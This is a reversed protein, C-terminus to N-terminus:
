AIPKKAACEEALEIIRSVGERVDGMNGCLAIRVFNDYDRGFNIGPTAATNKKRLLLECFELGNTLTGSIDIFFYFASDPKIFKIISSHEMMKAIEQTTEQYYSRIKETYDDIVKLGALCGYQTFLSLCSFLTSNSLTLKEIVKKSSIAYGIRYGPISFVKSFSSIIILQPYDLEALSFFPRGFATDAYTEDSLLWIGKESCKKALYEMSDKSYVKGTPNNASNVIIARPMLSIAKDVDEVSLDFGSKIALPVSQVNLGIYTSAAFYTPFAPSFFVIRDGRDCVLDMFQSILLNAPSIVVEEASIQRTQKLSYRKGIEERLELLGSSSAYGTLKNELANITEKYIGEPPPIRPNGLELHFVKKGELEMQKARDLIKFMEQGILADGRSSFIGRDIRTMNFLEQGSYSFEM